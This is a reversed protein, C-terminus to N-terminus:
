YWHIDQCSAESEQESEVHEQPSVQVEKVKGDITAAEFEL